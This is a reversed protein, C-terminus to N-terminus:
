LIVLSGFLVFLFNLCGNFCGLTVITVRCVRLAFYMESSEQGFLYLGLSLCCNLELTPATQYPDM